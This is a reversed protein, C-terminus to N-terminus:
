QVASAGADGKDGKPLRVVRVDFVGGATGGDRARFTITIKPAAALEAPLPYTVHRFDAYPTGTLTETALSQDGVLIDFTRNKDSGWYTVRLAAPEKTDSKLTYHFFAKTDRWHLQTTDGTQKFDFVGTSTQQGAFDHATESKPNGVIVRDITRADLNEQDAAFAARKQAITQAAAPTVVPFYLAYREYFITYFPRLTVPAHETTNTLQFTLPKGPVPKLHAATNQADGILAPADFQPTLKQALQPYPARNPGGGYFDDRTLDQTGLPAALLVPGCRFAVTQPANPLSVTQLHMPLAIEVVDGTKWTRSVSAYGADSVPANVTKQNVRIVFGSKVWSPRRIQLTLATPKALSVTLRTQAEEPFRTTQTLTLGREKWTLTSAIFLNVYLDSAEHTQSAGRAYIMENYRAHNEMGTGVCCWFADTPRSFVRYHGSRMPTYYVFGGEPAESPLIHNFLANEMYDMYSAAPANQWLTETLKIMNYTNCTEPGCGEAVKAPFEDPAFFAEWQSNAGNAWSYDTTVANWFNKAADHYTKDGSLDYIREDGVFKPVQTNAHLRPLVSANNKALPNFVAEHKWKMAFTLYKKDGTIAYVDAFVEQPGGHEAALMTQWQAPTLKATVSIAWDCAKILVSKAEANHTLVAADRVGALTKHMVYWANVNTQIVEGTNLKAFWTNKDWEYSYLGGDGGAKQCEDMQSVMYKVRRALEADGTAATMQSCASLYHGIMGAGGADWGGYPEAKPKLGCSKRMNSLFRDPDLSLLYKRDVEQATKWPSSPALRVSALPFLVAAPPVADHGAQALTGTQAAAPVAALITGALAALAIFPPTANM